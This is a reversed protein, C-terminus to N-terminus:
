PDSELEASVRELRMEYYLPPFRDFRGTIAEITSPMGQAEYRLTDYDWLCTNRTRDRAPGPGVFAAALGIFALVILVRFPDTSRTRPM